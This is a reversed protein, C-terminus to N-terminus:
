WMFKCVVEREQKQKKIQKDEEWRIHRISRAHRTTNSNGLWGGCGCQTSNEHNQKPPGVKKKKEKPIKKIYLKRPACVVNHTEIYKNRWLQYANKYLPNLSPHEINAWEQYEASARWADKTTQPGGMNIKKSKKSVQNNQRKPPLPQKPQKPQTPPQEQKSRISIPRIVV